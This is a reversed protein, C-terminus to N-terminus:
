KENMLHVIWVHARPRPPGSSPNATAHAVSTQDPACGRSLRVNDHNKYSFAKDVQHFQRVLLQSEGSFLDWAHLARGSTCDIGRVLLETGALDVISECIDEDNSVAM